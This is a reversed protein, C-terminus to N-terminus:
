AGALYRSLSLFTTLSSAKSFNNFGQVSRVKLTDPELEVEVVASQERERIAERVITRLKELLQRDENSLRVRECGYLYRFVIRLLRPDRLGKELIMSAVLTAVGREVEGEVVNALSDVLKVLKVDAKSVVIPSGRTM